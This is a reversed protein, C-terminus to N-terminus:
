FIPTTLVRLGVITWELFTLDTHGQIDTAERSATRWRRGVMGAALMVVSVAGM